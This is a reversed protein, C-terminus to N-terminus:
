NLNIYKTKLKFVAARTKFNLLFNFNGDNRASLTPAAIWQKLNLIVGLVAACTKFNWLFLFADNRASKDAFCDM